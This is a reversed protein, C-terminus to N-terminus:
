QLANMCDSGADNLCVLSESMSWHSKEDHDNEHGKTRTSGCSKAEDLHPLKRSGIGAALVKGQRLCTWTATEPATARALATVAAAAATSTQMKGKKTHCRTPAAILPLERRVVRSGRRLSSRCRGRRSRRSRIGHGHRDGVGGRAAAAGLRLGRRMTATAAAAM